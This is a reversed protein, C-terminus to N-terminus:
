TPQSGPDGAPHKPLNMCASTPLPREIGVTNSGDTLRARFERWTQVDKRWADVYEVCLAPKVRRMWATSAGGAAVNVM